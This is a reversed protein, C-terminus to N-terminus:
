FLSLQWKRNKVGNKIIAWIFQGDSWGQGEKLIMMGM